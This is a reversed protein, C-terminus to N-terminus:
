KVFLSGIDNNTRQNRRMKAYMLKIVDKDSMGNYIDGEPVFVSEDKDGLLPKVQESFSAGGGKMSHHEIIGKQGQLRDTRQKGGYIHLVAYPPMKKNDM